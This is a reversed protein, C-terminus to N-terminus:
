VASASSLVVGGSEAEGKSLVRRSLNTQVVVKGEVLTAGAVLEREEERGGERVVVQHKQKNVTSCSSEQHLEQSNQQKGAGSDARKEWGQLKAWVRIGVAVSQILVAVANPLTVQLQRVYFIGQVVGGTATLIVAVNMQWSGMFDVNRQAFVNRFEVLPACGYVLCAVAAAYGVLVIWFNQDDMPPRPDEDNGSSIMGGVVGTAAFVFCGVAFVTTLVCLLLLRYYDRRVTPIAIPNWIRPYLALCVVGLVFGPGTAVVVVLGKDWGIGLGFFFWCVTQVCQFALPLPPTDTTTRRHLAPFVITLLPIAFLSIATAPAYIDWFLRLASSTSM